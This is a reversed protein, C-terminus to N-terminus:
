SQNRTFARRWAALARDYADKVRLFGQHSGGQDPHHRKALWLFARKATRANEETPSRRLREIAQWHAAEEIALERKKREAEAVAARQEQKLIHESIVAIRAEAAKLRCRLVRRQDGRAPRIERELTGRVHKWHALAKEPTDTGDEERGLYCLLRNTPRGQNDRYSEILVYSRTNRSKRLYIYAM